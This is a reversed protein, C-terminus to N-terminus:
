EEDAPAADKFAQDGQMEQWRVYEWFLFFVRTKKCGQMMNQVNWLVVSCFALFVIAGHVFKELEGDYDTASM